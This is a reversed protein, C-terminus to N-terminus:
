RGAKFAMFLAMAAIILIMSLRLRDPSVRNAFRAGIDTGIWLGVILAAIALWPLETGQQVYLLAAPLTVPLATVALSMAQARHQAIGAIGAMLATIALGGGIGLFGSSWGAAGGIGGLTLWSLPVDEPVDGAGDSKARQSRLLMIALLIVLYGVFCWQLARDPVHVALLAGVCGGVGFGAALWALWRMSIRHGSKSYNRVGSLSTPVIQAVLSIGQAVHQEKGLILILLPVLVGGATVGLFGSFLGGALGTILGGIVEAVNM